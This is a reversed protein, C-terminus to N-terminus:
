GDVPEPESDDPQLPAFTGLAVPDRSEAPLTALGGVYNALAASSQSASAPVESLPDAAAPPEEYGGGGCASLLLSLVAPLVVSQVRKM